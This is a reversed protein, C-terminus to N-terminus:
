QYRTTELIFSQPSCLRVYSLLMHKSTIRNRLGFLKPLWFFYEIFLQSFLEYLEKLILWQSILEGVIKHM